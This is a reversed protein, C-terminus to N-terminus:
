KDPTTFFAQPFLYLGGLIPLIFGCVRVFILYPLCHIKVDHVGSPLCIKHNQLCFRDSRKIRKFNQPSLNYTNNM